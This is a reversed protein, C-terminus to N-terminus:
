FLTWPAPSDGLPAALEPGDNGVRNVLPSVRQTELWDDPCPQLLNKLGALDHNSPDLWESWSSEPLIVPMRDHLPAMVANATTTIITCTNLTEGTAPDKRTEWLGALALPEGDKRRIIFPQRGNTSKQWEYFADAPILCRRNKFADRFAPKEEVTESRANFTRSAIKLDKAWGPVLGWKHVTLIRREGDQIVVMVPDTPAVNYRPAIQELRTMAFEAGFSKSYEWPKREQVIRGCVGV